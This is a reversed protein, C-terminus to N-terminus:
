ARRRVVPRLRVWIRAVERRTDDTGPGYMEDEALTRLRDIDLAVQPWYRSVRCCIWGLTAAVSVEIGRYELRRSLALVLRTAPPPGGGARRRWRVVVALLVIALVVVVATLQGAPSGARTVLWRTVDGFTTLIGLQEGFGFTLVRRDFFDEARQWALRIRDFVGMRVLGDVGEAPTPDFVAWGREPGLWAEVWTHAHSQRVVVDGGPEADGGHYGSVVRAEVGEHRLMVAMATAFFECHGERGQLLFWAVPDTGQGSQGALSYRYESKLFAEITEAKAAASTADGAVDQALQCVQDNHGPLYLDREEPGAMNPVANEAVWVRYRPPTDSGGRVVLGGAPDLAVRESTEVAVTGPPLFLFRNRRTLAIELVSAGELTQREKDLWVLGQRVEPPVLGTRRPGWVAPFLMDYGTARLRLLSGSVASGDGTSLYAAPANSQEIAGHRSLEVSESFGSERGFAAGLLPSGLRPLAMFVPISVIVAALAAAAAHRWRPGGLAAGTTRSLELLFVTMGVFWWVAVSVFFYPVIAVHVASLIGTIWVLFVLALARRLDRLGDITAVRLAALLFLLHGLPRLPGVELGGAAVVALLIVVGLANLVISSPRWRVQPRLVRWLGALGAVLWFPPLVVYLFPFPLLSWMLLMGALRRLGSAHKM